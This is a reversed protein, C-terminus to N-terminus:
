MADPAFSATRTTATRLPPSRAASNESRGPSLPRESKAHRDSSSTRITTSATRAAPFVPVSTAAANSTLSRSTSPNSNTDAGPAVRVLSRVPQVNLRVKGGLRRIKGPTEPLLRPLKKVLL